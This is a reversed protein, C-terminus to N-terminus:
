RRGPPKSPRYGPRALVAWLPPRSTWSSPTRAIIGGAGGGGARSGGGLGRALHVAVSNGFARRKGAAARAPSPPREPPNSPLPHSIM